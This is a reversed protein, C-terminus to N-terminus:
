VPVIAGFRCVTSCLGCKACLTQNIRIDGDKDSIAACSIGMCMKCNKCKGGDIRVAKDAKYSDLFVCPRRIIIVSPEPRQTEERVAKELAPIDFPDELRVHRVGIAECLKAIDIQATEENRITYGTAPHHQHGTMGTIANDLILVTSAGKNYVIDVLGTIGSHMFTSDGIVAVTKQAFEAGRAKDIGHAMSVSAGMCVCTDMAQLPPLAGLTYCGIDGCVILKLRKLV